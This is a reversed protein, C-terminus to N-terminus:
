KLGSYPSFNAFLNNQSNESGTSATNTNMELKIFNLKKILQDLDLPDLTQISEEESLNTELNSEKPEVEPTTIINQIKTPNIEETITPQAGPCQFDWHVQSKHNHKIKSIIKSFYRKIKSSGKVKSDNFYEENSVEDKKKKWYTGNKGYQNSVSRVLQRPKLGKKQVQEAKITSAEM